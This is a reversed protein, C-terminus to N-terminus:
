LWGILHDRAAAKEWSRELRVLTLLEVTKGVQLHVVLQSRVGLYGDITTLFDSWSGGM